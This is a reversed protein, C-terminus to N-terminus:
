SLTIDATCARRELHSLLYPREIEEDVESPERRSRSPQESRDQLEDYLSAPYRGTNPIRNNRLMCFWGAM